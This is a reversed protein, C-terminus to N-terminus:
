CSGWIDNTDSVWMKNGDVLGTIWPCVNCQLNLRKTAETTQIWNGLIGQSRAKQFMQCSIQFTESFRAVTEGEQSWSRLLLPIGWHHAFWLYIPSCCLQPHKQHFPEKELKCCGLPSHQTPLRSEPQCKQPRQSHAPTSPQKHAPTLRCSRSRWSGPVHYAAFWEIKSYTCTALFINTVFLSHARKM